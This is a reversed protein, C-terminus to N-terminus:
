READVFNLIDQHMRTKLESVNKAFPRGREAARWEADTRVRRKEFFQEPNREMEERYDRSRAIAKRIVDNLQEFASFDDNQYQRMLRRMQRASMRLYPRVEDELLYVRDPDFQNIYIQFSNRLITESIQKKDMHQSFIQQMVKKVDDHKLLEQEQSYAGFPACM